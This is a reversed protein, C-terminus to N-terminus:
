IHQHSHGHDHNHKDHGSRPNDEEPPENGCPCDTKKREEIIIHKLNPIGKLLNHFHASGDPEGEHHLLVMAGLEQGDLRWVHLDCIHNRGDQELRSKIQEVTSLSVDADLLIRSTQLLLGYAWKSIVVGGAVGVLSDLFTVDYLEGILLAIIAFVSTLADAIVHMYAAKLNHDTHRDHKHGDNESHNHEHDSHSHGHDHGHDHDGQHLLVASIINVILGIIAVYLAEGYLIKEPHILRELSEYIITIGVVALGLASTYGALVNVKGTGFTFRPNDRNKRAYWYAFLTIGLAAAHTGMHWGDALLAMSGTLWGGGVEFVMMVLTFLVVWRTRRENKKHQESEGNRIYVCEPFDGNSGAPLGTIIEDGM